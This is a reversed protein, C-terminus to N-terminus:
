RRRYDGAQFPCKSDIRTKVRLERSPLSIIETYIKDRNSMAFVSGSEAGRNSRKVPTSRTPEGESCRRTSGVGSPTSKEEGPDRQRPCSPYGGAPLSMQPARCGTPHGM